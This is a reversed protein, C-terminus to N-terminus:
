GANSDIQFKDARLYDSVKEEGVYSVDLNQRDRVIEIVEGGVFPLGSLPSLRECAVGVKSIPYQKLLFLAISGILEGASVYVQNEATECVRQAMQCWMDAGEATNPNPAKAELEGIIRIHLSLIQRAYTEHSNPAISCSIKLSGIVREQSSVEWESKHETKEQSPRKTFALVRTLGEEARPVATPTQAVIQLREDKEKLALPAICDVLQDLSKFTTRKLMREVQGSIGQLREFLLLHNFTRDEKAETTIDITVIVPRLDEWGNGKFLVSVLLKRLSATDLLRDPAQAAIGVKLVNPTSSSM